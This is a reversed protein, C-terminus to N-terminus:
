AAELAAIRSLANGLAAVLLPVLSSYDVAQYVPNGETDVADKVGNVAYPAVADIDHAYIMDWQDGTGEDAIWRGRFAVAALQSIRAAADTIPGENQKQRHDSTTNYAVSSASALTISGIRTGPAEGKEFAVYRSGTTDAAPSKRLQLNEGTTALVSSYGGTNWLKQGENGTAPDDGIRLSGTMVDGAKSVKDDVYSKPAADSASPPPDPLGLLRHGNMAINGTVNGGTKDLKGSELAGVRSQLTGHSGSPNSGMENVIDSLATSIANHDSPHNDAQPTTNTRNPPPVTPPYAM